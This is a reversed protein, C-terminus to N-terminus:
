HLDMASKKAELFQADLERSRDKGLADQAAPFINSEEDNVHAKVLEILEDLLNGWAVSAMPEADLRAIQQELEKAQEEHLEAFARTREDERLAPYVVRLEAREHSLLERRIQPWLDARETDRTQVRRLLGSVEGHQEMLTKWVGVLGKLTAKIAKGAEMGKSVLQDTRNPM